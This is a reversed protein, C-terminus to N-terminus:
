FLMGTAPNRAQLSLSRDQPDFGTSIPPNCMPGNDQRCHWEIELATDSILIVPLEKVHIGERFFLDSPSDFKVDNCFLGCAKAHAITSQIETCLMAFRNSKIHDQEMLEMLFEEENAAVSHLDNDQHETM